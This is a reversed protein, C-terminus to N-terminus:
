PFSAKLWRAVLAIEEDTMKSDYKPMHLGKASKIARVVKEESLRPVKSVLAPGRAGKGDGNHCIYCDVEPRTYGNYLLAGPDSLQEKPLPVGACGVLGLWVACALWSRWPNSSRTKMLRHKGVEELCILALM